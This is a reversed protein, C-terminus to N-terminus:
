AKWRNVLADVPVRMLNHGAENPHGGDSTLPGHDVRFIESDKSSMLTDAIEIIGALPHGPSGAVVVVGASGPSVPVGDILPAGARLWTNFETRMSATPPQTQGELTTWGDASTSRPSITTQYIKIGPNATKVWKWSNVASEMVSSIPKKQNFALEIDNYGWASIAHTFLTSDPITAWQGSPSQAYTSGWIGTNTWPIGADKVARTAYTHAQSMLPQGATSSRNPSGSETISDGLLLVALSDQYTKGAIAHPAVGRYGTGGDFDRSSALRPEVTSMTQDGELIEASFWAGPMGPHSQSDSRSGYYTFVELVQGARVTVGIPDTWIPTSGSLTARAEGSFTAQVRQSEGKVRVSVALPMEVGPPLNGGYMLELGTADALITHASYYTKSGTRGTNVRGSRWTESGVIMRKTLSSVDFSPSAGPETVPNTITHKGWVVTGDTRYIIVPAGSTTYLITM